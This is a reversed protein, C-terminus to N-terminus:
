AGGDAGNAAWIKGGHSEVISRAISLGMGMGGAKTTYFAEFLRRETGAALGPGSDGVVVHVLHGGSSATSVWVRRTAVAGTSTADLANRLLNLVVQQLQVRDGIVLLADASGGAELSIQRAGAERALLDVVSQLIDSMSVRARQSVRKTVLERVRGIIEGARRDDDLIDQLIEKLEQRKELGASALDVAVQANNMIAGLPQHLEHALSAAMEGMSAVRALHALEDRTRHTESEARRRWMRELLLGVILALQVGLVLLGAIVVPRSGGPPAAPRFLVIAGDPIRSEPVRWRQLQRWDLMPAATVFQVPLERPPTGLAVQGALVAL